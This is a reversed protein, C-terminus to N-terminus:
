AAARSGKGQIVRIDDINLLREVDLVLILKKEKKAVGSLYSQKIQNEIDMAPALSGSEIAMVSHIEDVIVGIFIPALDLIIIATESTVDSKKMQMKVRLDIVSIVQGRLNMIGKFHAPAYPIATVETFGIVEKVKLLPVGFSESNLGFILFRSVTENAASTAISLAAGQKTIFTTPYNPSERIFSLLVRGLDPSSIPQVNQPEGRMM